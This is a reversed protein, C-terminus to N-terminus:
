FFTDASIGAHLKMEEISNLLLQRTEEFDSKTESLVKIKFLSLNRELEDSIRHPISLSIAIKRKNWYDLLSSIREPNDTTIASVENLMYKYINIIYFYNVIILAFILLLSCCSIVFAKM